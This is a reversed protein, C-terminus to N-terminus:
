VAIADMERLDVPILRSVGQEIMTVGYMIDTSAMTRKNHTVIIFQSDSSFKRIINNFKDINADDLPADVEDFICFPAPKILYIAFLLSIATLTKEGSSLQSISQPRKGKPRAMIDIPSELPNDPETLVLDCTDEETFLSQFVKKFNEKIQTYTQLFTTQAVQEIEQITAMLTGKADMLDKKQTNIFDFREKMEEFAQLAMPNIPGLREMKQKIDAVRQRLEEQNLLNAQPDEEDELGEKELDVEFEVRTREILGKLSLANEQVKQMLDNILQDNQDKKSMLERAEKEAKDIEGRAKYWAQEAETVGAEMDRREEYLSQLAEDNIVEKSRLAEADEKVKALETTYRSIRTELTKWENAKYGEDQIKSKLVNERQIQAVNLRNFTQSRSSLVQEQEEALATCYTVKQQVQTLKEETVKLQPELENLELSFSEAKTKLEKERNESASLLQVIQEKRTILAVKEQGLRNLTKQLNEIEEKKRSQKLAILEQQKLSIQQKLSATKENLKVIEQQLKELNRARGIRKGEFIGISGGNLSRERDILGGQQAIFVGEAGTPWLNGDEVIFVGQLLFSVLEEYKADFEVVEIAPKCNAPTSYTKAGYNKFRELVFFNARGKGAKALLGIAQKAQAETEVVYYNMYGELYNELAVRYADTTTLADSLLTARAEWETNKKLFKLAEPYGELNDVLSKTLNFENQRADIERNAIALEERLKETETQNEQIRKEIMTDLKIAGELEREQVAIDEFLKALQADFGELNASQTGSDNLSRELEQDISQLQLKLLQAQQRQKFALDQTQQFENRWQQLEERVTKTQEEQKNLLEKAQKAEKQAEIFAQEAETKELKLTEINRELIELSQKDLGIQQQLNREREELYNLRENKLKKDTEYQRIAAVKDNFAKQRSQLLNEKGLLGAKEKEIAAQVEALKAAVQGRETKLVEMQGILRQRGADENRILYRALGVSAQKYQGKLQFYQEAQKAQKELSKLNKSIEFLLDEVRELDKDTEELRRLTEKKRQKFRSVGAAEEFLNRRANEKDSLIDEVMKLEIIAYSDPGIGTDLFLNNIDKLRCTVGNLLYESDGSRFYRRSITVESYETPLINKTNSFTLSVEAMQGAKRNKTGNFLIGEMKESRLNKTRQEGLVWRIADVVNSKGCGNPGVIGTIGDNFHLVAKDGFSKFGKIELRTLQM